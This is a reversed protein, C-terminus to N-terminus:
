HSSVPCGEKRTLWAFSGIAADPAQSRGDKSPGLEMPSRPRDRPPRNRAYRRSQRCHHAFRSLSSACCNRFCPGGKRLVPVSPEPVSCRRRRGAAQGVPPASILAGSLANDDAGKRRGADPQNQNSQQDTINPTRAPEAPRPVAPRNIGRRNSQMAGTIPARWQALISRRRQWLPRTRAPHRISLRNCYYSPLGRRVWWCISWRTTRGRM